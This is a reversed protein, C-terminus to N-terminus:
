VEIDTKAYNLTVKIPNDHLTIPAIPIPQDDFSLKSESLLIKFELPAKGFWKYHLKDYLDKKVSFSPLLHLYLTKVNTLTVSM